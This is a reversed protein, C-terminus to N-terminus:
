HVHTHEGHEHTHEERGLKELEALIKRALNSKDAKKTDNKDPQAPEQKMQEEDFQKTTEQIPKEEPIFQAGIQTIPTFQPTAASYYQRLYRIPQTDRPIPAYSQNSYAAQYMKPQDYQTANRYRYGVGGAAIADIIYRHPACVM